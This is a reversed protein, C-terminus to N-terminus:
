RQAEQILDAVAVPESCHPCPGGPGVRRAFTACDYCYQEGVPPRQGCDPCEYITHERRPRPAPVGAPILQDQHRRRFATKRCRDGCYRQRGAPAFRAQCVPCTM